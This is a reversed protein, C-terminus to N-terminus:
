SRGGKGGRPALRGATKESALTHLQDASAADGSERMLAAANELAYADVLGTRDFGAAPVALMELAARGLEANRDDSKDAAMARALRSRCTGIAALRWSALYSPPEEFAKDLAAVARELARADVAEVIDGLLALAQVARSQATSQVPPKTGAPASAAARGPAGGASGGGCARAIRVLREAVEGSAGSAKVAELAALVEARDAEPLFPALEPLLGTEPDVVPRLTPFRSPEGSALHRVCALWPEVAARLDHEELACRLMAEAVMAATPGGADSFRAWHKELLPRALPADGREVRIRARWLDRGVDIFDTLGATGSSGSVERVSDWPVLTVKGGSDRASLGREDGTVSDARLTQDGGRIFVTTDARSRGAIALTCAALVPLLDMARLTTARPKM